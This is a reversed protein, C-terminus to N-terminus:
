GGGRGGQRTVGLGFLPEQFFFTQPPEFTQSLTCFMNDEKEPPKLDALLVSFSGGLVLYRKKEQIKSTQEGKKPSTKKKEM